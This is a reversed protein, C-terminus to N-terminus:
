TTEQKNNGDHSKVAVILKAWGKWISFGILCGLTNHIIDDIEFSGKQFALQLLEISLSLGLGLLFVIFWQQRATCKLVQQSLLLGVPIFLLVNTVMEYLLPPMEGQLLSKYSSFPSFCHSLKANTTRFIVTIGYIFFLYENFLLCIIYRVSKWGYTAILFVIGIFLLLFLVEYIIQPVISLQWFIYEFLGKLSV